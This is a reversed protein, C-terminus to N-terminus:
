REIAERPQTSPDACRLPTLVIDHSMVFASPIRRYRLALIEKRVSSRSFRDGPGNRLAKASNVRHGMSVENAAVSRVREFGERIRRITFSGPTFGPENVFRLALSEFGRHNGVVTKLVTVNPRETLGGPAKPASNIKAPARYAESKERVKPLSAPNESFNFARSVHSLPRFRCGALTNPACTGRLNM